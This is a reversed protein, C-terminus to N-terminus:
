LNEDLTYVATHSADHLLSLYTLTLKNGERKTLTLMRELVNPDRADAQEWDKREEQATLRATLNVATGTSPYVLYLQAQDAPRVVLADPAAYDVIFTDGSGTLAKIDYTRTVSGDSGLYYVNDEDRMYLQTSPLPKADNYSPLALHYDTQRVMEGNRILAQYVNSFENFMAYHSDSLTLLHAGGTLTRIDLMHNYPPDSLPLRGLLKPEGSAVAAYVEGTHQSVWYTAGPVAATVYRWEETINLNGTSPDRWVKGGLLEAGSVLPIRLVGKTLRVPAKLAYATGNVKATGSGATVTIQRGPRTLVLVRSSANWVASYGMERALAKLPVWTTGASVASKGAFDLNKYNLLIAPAGAGYVPREGFAATGGLGLAAALLAAALRRAQM